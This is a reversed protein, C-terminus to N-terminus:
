TTLTNNKIHKPTKVCKNRQKNHDQLGVGIRSENFRNDLWSNNELAKTM